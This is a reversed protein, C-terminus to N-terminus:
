NFTKDKNFMQWLTYRTDSTQGFPLNPGLSGFTLSGSVRKNYSRASPSALFGFAEASHLGGSHEIDKYPKM